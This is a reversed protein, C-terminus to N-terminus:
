KKAEEAKQEGGGKDKEGKKESKKDAKGKGKCNCDHSEGDCAYSPVAYGGILATALLLTKLTRM